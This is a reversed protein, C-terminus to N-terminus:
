DGTLDVCEIQGARRKKRQRSGPVDNAEHKLNATITALPEPAERKVSTITDQVEQQEQANGTGELAALQARLRRIEEDKDSLQQAQDRPPSAASAFSTIPTIEPDPSDRPIYGLIQLADPDL